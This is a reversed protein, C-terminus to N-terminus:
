GSDTSAQFRSSTALDRLEFEDGRSNSFWRWRLCVREADAALVVVFSFRIEFDGLQRAVDSFLTDDSKGGTRQRAVGLTTCVRVAHRCVAGLAAKVSFQIEKTSGRIPTAEPHQQRDGTERDAM